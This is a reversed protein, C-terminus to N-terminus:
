GKHENQLFKARRLNQYDVRNRWTILFRQRQEGLMEDVDERQHSTEREKLTPIENVNPLLPNPKKGFMRCAQLFEESPEIMHDERQVGKNLSRGVQDIEKIEAKESSVEEESFISM